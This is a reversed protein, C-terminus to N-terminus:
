LWYSHKGVRLGVGSGARHHGSVGPQRDVMSWTSGGHCTPSPSTTRWAAQVVLPLPQDTIIALDLDSYPKAEGRARSGFAWVPYGPAHRALISRVIRLHEPAIDLVPTEAM